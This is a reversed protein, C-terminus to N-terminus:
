NERFPHPCDKWHHSPDGCRLCVSKGAGEGKRNPIYSFTKVAGRRSAEHIGPTNRPKYPKKPKMLMIPGDELLVESTEDDCQWDCENWQGNWDNAESAMEASHYTWQSDCGGQADATFVEAPDGGPKHTEYMRITVERLAAVSFRDPRTELVSLVIPLQGEPLRLAHIARNFIVKDIMPMGLADLKATCRSFRAWFDKYNEQTERKFETFAALWSCARESDTRGFRSDLMNIVVAISRGEPCQETQDMYLLAETKIALPLVRILKALLQTTSAGPQGAIWLKIERKWNQFTSPTFAPCADVVMNPFGLCPMPTFGSENDVPMQFPSDMTAKPPPMTSSTSPERTENGKPGFKRADGAVPFTETRQCNSERMKSLEQQMQLTAQGHAGMQQQQQFQQQHITATQQTLNRHCEDQRNLFHMQQTTVHELELNRAVLDANSQLLTKLQAENEKMATEHKTQSLQLAQLTERLSEVLADATSAMNQQKIQGDVIQSSIHKFQQEVIKQMANLQDSTVRSDETTKEDLQTLDANTSQQLEGPHTTGPLNPPHVDAIPESGPQNGADIIMSASKKLEPSDGMIVSTSTPYSRSSIEAALLSLTDDIDDMSLPSQADEWASGSHDSGRSKSYPQSGAVSHRDSRIAVYGSHSIQNSSAALDGM